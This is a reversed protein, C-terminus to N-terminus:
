KKKRKPYAIRAILYIPFINQVLTSFTIEINYMVLGLSCTFTIWLYIFKYIPNSENATKRGYKGALYVFLISYLPSLLPGFYYYGMGITTPIQGTVANHENFFTAVYPIDHLGFLTNGFPVARLYDCLFFRFANGIDQPMNFTGSVINLGSFYGVSKRAFYETLSENQDGVFYRGLWYILVLVVGLCLLRVIMKKEIGYIYFTIFMLFLAYYISKAIAGGVILFPFLSVIFSMIKGYKLKKVKFFVILYLPILVVGISILYNSVILALKIVINSGYDNIINGQEVSSFDVDTFVGFIPRYSKLIEPSILCCAATIALVFMVALTFIKFGKRNSHWNSKEHVDQRCQKIGLLVAICICEYSLLLIAWVTNNESGKTIIEGYGSLTLLVPSVVLRIFELALILLTGFNTLLKDSIRYNVFLMIFYSIPLLFLFDYAYSRTGSFDFLVIVVAFLSLIMIVSYVYKLKAKKIRDISIIRSLNPTKVCTM